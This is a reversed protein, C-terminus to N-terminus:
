KESLEQIGKTIQYISKKEFSENDKREFELDIQRELEYTILCYEEFGYRHLNCLM